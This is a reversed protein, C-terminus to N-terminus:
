RDRPPAAIVVERISDYPVDTTGAVIVRARAWPRDAALFPIEEAMWADWQERASADGAHRLMGRREAEVADSQVWVVADLLHTLERRGAGVGEIIMVPVEALVDINGARGHSPWARPQFHVSHGHHLPELVGDIM